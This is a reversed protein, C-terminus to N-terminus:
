LSMNTFDFRESKLSFVSIAKMLFHYTYNLPHSITRGEGQHHEKRMGVMAKTGKGKSQEVQMFKIMLSEDMLTIAM